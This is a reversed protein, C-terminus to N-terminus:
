DEAAVEFVVVVEAVYSAAAATAAAVEAVMAVLSSGRVMKTETINNYVIM